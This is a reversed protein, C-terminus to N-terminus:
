NNKLIDNKVVTELLIDIIGQIDKNNQKTITYLISEPQKTKLNPSIELLMEWQEKILKKILPVSDKYALFVIRNAPVNDFLFNVEYECGKNTESFGRLDMLIVNAKNVLENVALKWTNDYCMVPFEKFTNDYGKPWKNLHQLQKKLLEESSIFKSKLSKVSFIIYFVSGIILLFVFAGFISQLDEFKANDTLQTFLLFIIIIYIPFYYNYKKKWNVKYFSPDAVTFYSGFHQWFNVLGAFTFSSTKKILFVRLILLKLNPTKRGSIKLRYILLIHILLAAILLLSRFKLFGFLAIFMIAVSLTLCWRSQFPWFILKWVPKFFGFVGKNYARFQHRYGIYRGINWVLLLLLFLFYMYTFRKVQILLDPSDFVEAGENIYFLLGLIGYVTIAILDNFFLKKFDKKARKVLKERTAKTEKMESDVDVEILKLKNNAAVEKGKSLNSSDAKSEKSKKMMMVNMKRLLFGRTIWAILMAVFIIAVRYSLGQTVRANDTNAFVTKIIFLAFTLLLIFKKSSISNHRKNEFNDKFNTLNM